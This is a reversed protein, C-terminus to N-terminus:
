ILLSSYCFYKGIISGDENTQYYPEVVKVKDLYQQVDLKRIHEELKLTELLLLDSDIGDDDFDDDEGDDNEEQSCDVVGDEGNEKVKAEESEISEKMQRNIQPARVKLVGQAMESAQELTPLTDQDNEDDMESTKPLLSDGKTAKCQRAFHGIQGCNFCTLMGGDCGGMDMDPGCLAKAKAAKWQAKKYKKFSKGSKGRVYIKKRLDIRVFNDNLNGAAIKRELLDRAQQRKDKTLSISSPAEETDENAESTDAKTVIKKDTLIKKLNSYRPAVIRPKVSFELAYSREEDEEPEVPKEKITKATSRKVRPSKRTTKNSKKKGPPIVIKTEDDVPSDEDDFESVGFQNKPNEGFDPDSEEDNAFPDEEGSSLEQLNVKVRTARTSRRPTLEEKTKAKSKDSSRPQKNPAAKPKRPTLEKSKDESKVSRKPKKIPASKPKRPTKTTSKNQPDKKKINSKQKTIKNEPSTIETAQQVDESSEKLLSDKNAEIKNNSDVTTVINEFLKAKGVIKEYDEVDMCNDTEVQSQIPAVTENNTQLNSSPTGFGLAQVQASPEVKRKKSIHLSTFDKSCTEDDSEEIIDESDYDLQTNQFGKCLDSTTFSASNSSAISILAPRETNDLQSFRTGPTPVVQNDDTVGNIQAVRELWGTDVAKLQKYNNELVTQIFNVPQSKSSEIGSQIQFSEPTFCNENQISATFDDVGFSAFSGFSLMPQSSTINVANDSRNNSIPQSLSINDDVSVNSKTKHSFSLSKRPNRKTLKSGCFLKKTISLNPHEKKENKEKEDDKKKNNLHTGWVGALAKNSDKPPSM